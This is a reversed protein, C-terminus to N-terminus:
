AGPVVFGIPNRDILATAHAIGYAVVLGPNERARAIQNGRADIVPQFRIPYNAVIGAVRFDDQGEQPRFM